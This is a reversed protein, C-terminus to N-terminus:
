IYRKNAGVVAPFEGLPLRAVLQVLNLLLAGLADVVLDQAQYAQELLAVHVSLPVLARDQLPLCDAIM